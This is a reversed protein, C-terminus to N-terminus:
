ADAKTESTLVLAGLPPLQLTVSHFHGHAPLPTSDVGGLNGQGSGGYLTADSNLREVWRGPRPVGLRYNERPIPTFNLVIIISPSAGTGKREFAFVSADRDRCDIWAFGGPAFDQEYLAPTERYLRNLDKLWRALGAHAPQDLLEWQLSADHNWELRQGFEGGM